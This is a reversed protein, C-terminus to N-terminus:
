LTHVTVTFVTGSAPTFGGITQLIAFLDPTLLSVQKNIKDNDGFVTNGEDIPTGLIINGLYANRDAVALDWAANDAIATPSQNYLRLNFGAMGVPVSTSAIMLEVSTILIENDRPGAVNKFQLIASGNADGIVDLATYADTDAPRTIAVSNSNKIM